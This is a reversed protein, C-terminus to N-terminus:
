GSHGAAVGKYGTTLCSVSLNAIRVFCNRCRWVISEDGQLVDHTLSTLVTRPLDTASAGMAGYDGLLGVESKVFLDGSPSTLYQDPKLKHKDEAAVLTSYCLNYAQLGCDRMCTRASYYSDTCCARVCGTNPIFVVLTEDVKDLVILCCRACPLHCLVGLFQSTYYPQATSPGM